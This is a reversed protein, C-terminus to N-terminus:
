AINNHLHQIKSNLAFRQAEIDESEHETTAPWGSLVNEVHSGRRGWKFRLLGVAACVTAVM